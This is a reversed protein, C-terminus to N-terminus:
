VMQNAAGSSAKGYYYAFRYAYGSYCFRTMLFYRKNPRTNAYCLDCFFFLPCACIKWIKERLIPCIGGKKHEEDM